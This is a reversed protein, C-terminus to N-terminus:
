FHLIRKLTFHDHELQIVNVFIQDGRRRKRGTGDVLQQEFCIVVVPSALQPQHRIRIAFSCVSAVLDRETSPWAQKHVALRAKPSPGSRTKATHFFRLPPDMSIFGPASPIPIPVIRLRSRNQDIGSFHRELRM